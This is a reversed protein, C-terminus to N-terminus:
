LVDPVAYFVTMEGLSHYVYSTWSFQEYKLVGCRGQGDIDFIRGCGRGQVDLKFRVGVGEM